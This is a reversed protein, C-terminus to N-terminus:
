GSAFAVFESLGEARQSHAALNPYDAAHVIDAIMMQTFRWMVATTVDAQSLTDAVLWGPGVRHELGELAARLQGTVRALWPEHQKEAPRQNKEYVIQVTKDCAVLALGVIRLAELRATIDKPMLSRGSGAALAEAYEIILSEVLVGGDEGILSPAKLVPSLAQFEPIHRFVSLERHDFDIGLHRMTIAARRVYPSDLLGVLLM